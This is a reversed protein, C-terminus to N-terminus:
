HEQEFSPSNREQDRTSGVRSMYLAETRDVTGKISFLKRARAYGARGMKQALSPNQSLRLIAKGICDPRHSPVLMGTRGDDVVEPVGGVKTSVVPLRKAMAEIIALGLGENHSSLVFLDTADLLEPVDERWGLFVCVCDIGLSRSEAELQGRLEGEGTIVLRLQPNKAHAQAFGNLLDSQGKIPVLRGASLCVINDDTYGLAKRIKERDGARRDFLDIDIGNYIYVYQDRKGIGAALYQEIERQTLCIIRDSLLAAVREFLSFAATASSSFYGELINGHSSHIIVPVRCLAAALRGLIGAKSTHTHVIRFSGSQIIRILRFLSILDRLPHIKRRLSSVVSVPVGLELDPISLEREPDDAKGVVLSIDFVHPNTRRLLEILAAPAGGQELRTIIHLVRIRSM